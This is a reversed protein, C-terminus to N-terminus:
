TVRGIIGDGPSAADPQEDLFQVGSVYTQPDAEESVLRSHMVRGTLEVTSGDGLTLLFEHVAGEVLPIGTEVAMGGLSIERVEVPVDFAVTHGHLRGLIEIRPSHRRETAM